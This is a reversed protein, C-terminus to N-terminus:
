THIYMVGSPRGFCQDVTKVFFDSCLGAFVRSRRSFLFLFLNFDKEFIKEGFLKREQNALEKTGGIIFDTGLAICTKGGFGVLM